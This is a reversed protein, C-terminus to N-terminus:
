GNIERNEKLDIRGLHAQGRGPQIRICKGKADTGRLIRKTMGIKSSLRAGSRISAWTLLASGGPLSVQLETRKKAPICALVLAIWVRGPPALIGCIFTGFTRVRTAPLHFQSIFSGGNYAM